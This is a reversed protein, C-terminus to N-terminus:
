AHQRLRTLAPRQPAAPATEAIPSEVTTLITEQSSAPDVFAWFMPWERWGRTEPCHEQVIAVMRRQAAKEHELWKRYRAVGRPLDTTWTADEYRRYKRFDLGYLHVMGGAGPLVDAEPVMVDYSVAIRGDEAPPIAM